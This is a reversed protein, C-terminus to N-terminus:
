MWASSTSDAGPLALRIARTGPVMPWVPAYEESRLVGAGNGKGNGNGNTAFSM